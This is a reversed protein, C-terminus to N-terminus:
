STPQAEYMTKLASAADRLQERLEAPELVEVDKGLKLVEITAHRISEIPVVARRWGDAGPEEANAVTARAAVGLWAFPVLEYGAPSLRVVM